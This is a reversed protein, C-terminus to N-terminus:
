AYVVGDLIICCFRTGGIWMMFFHITQAVRDLIHYWLQYWFQIVPGNRIVVGYILCTKQIM